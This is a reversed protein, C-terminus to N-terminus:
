QQRKDSVHQLRVSIDILFLRQQDIKIFEGVRRINHHIAKGFCCYPM